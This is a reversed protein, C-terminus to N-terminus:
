TEFEDYYEKCLSPTYQAFLADVQEVIENGTYPINLKKLLKQLAPYTELQGIFGYLMFNNFVAQDSSSLQM